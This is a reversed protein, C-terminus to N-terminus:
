RLWAKTKTCSLGHHGDPNVLKGCVCIHSECVKNGLRLAVAIRAADNDLLLGLHQSPVAQLWKSSHKTSSALIRARDTPCSSSLLEIHISKVRLADWANQVKRLEVSAPTLEEPYNEVM